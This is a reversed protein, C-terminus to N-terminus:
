EEKAPMSEQSEDPGVLQWSARVSDKHRDGWDVFIRPSQAQLLLDATRLRPHDRPAVESKVERRIRDVVEGEDRGRLFDHLRAAICQAAM